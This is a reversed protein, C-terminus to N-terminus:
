LSGGETKPSSHAVQQVLEANQIAFAVQFAVAMLLQRDDSSFPLDGLRKGLSLLGLLEDKSAIPILIETGMRQLTEREHRRSEIM